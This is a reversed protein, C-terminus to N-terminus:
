VMAMIKEFLGEPARVHQLDPDSNVEKLIAEAEQDLDEDFLQQLFMRCDENSWEDPIVKREM